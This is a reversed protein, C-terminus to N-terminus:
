ERYNSHKSVILASLPQKLITTQTMYNTTQIVNQCDSTSMVEEYLRCVCILCPECLFNYGLKFFVLVAM